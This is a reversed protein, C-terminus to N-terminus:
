YIVEKKAEFFAIRYIYQKSVRATLTCFTKAALINAKGALLGGRCILRRFEEEKECSRCYKRQFEKIKM